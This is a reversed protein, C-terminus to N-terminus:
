SYKPTNPKKLNKKDLIFGVWTLDNKSFVISFGNNKSKLINDSVRWSWFKSYFYPCEWKLDAKFIRTYTYNWNSWKGFDLISKKLLNSILIDM